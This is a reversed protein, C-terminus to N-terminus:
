VYFKCIFTEKVKDLFRNNLYNLQIFKRVRGDGAKHFNIDTAYIIMRRAKKRWGIRDQLIVYIDINKLSKRSKSFATSLDGWGEAEFYKKKM